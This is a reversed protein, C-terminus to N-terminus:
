VALTLFSTSRAELGLAMRFRGLMPPVISGPAIVLADVLAWAILDLANDHPRAPAQRQLFVVVPGLVPYDHAARGLDREIALHREHVLVFRDVRGIPDVCRSALGPM